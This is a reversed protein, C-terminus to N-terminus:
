FLDFVEYKIREIKQEASKSSKYRYGFGDKFIIVSWKPNKFLQNLDHLSVKSTFRSVILDKKRETFLFGVERIRVSSVENVLFLSDIGKFIDKKLLSFNVTSSDKIQDKYRFTADLILEQDLSDVFTLPKIFYQIGEDGVFFTEFLKKGSKNSGPKIGKCSSLFITLTLISLCRFVNVGLKSRM